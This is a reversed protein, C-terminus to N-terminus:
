EILGTKRAREEWRKRALAQLDADADSEDMIEMGLLTEFLDEMTVLGVLSGYEDVVIVMHIRQETLTKFLEQLTLSDRVAVIPRAIEKLQLDSRGEVVQTLIEDKLVMGIVHDQADEYIPIRSFRLTPNAKYFDMAKTDQDVLLM